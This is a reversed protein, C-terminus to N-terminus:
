RTEEGIAEHAVHWAAYSDRCGAHRCTDFEACVHGYNDRITTLALRLRELEGRLRALDRSMDDMMGAMTKLADRHRNHLDDMDFPYFTLAIWGLCLRTTYDHLFYIGGWKGFTISFTM